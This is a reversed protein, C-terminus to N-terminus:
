SSFVRFITKFIVAFYNKLSPNAIFKRNLQIKAPMIEKVYTEDPNPSKGLLENEHFYEISAVDTIGPKVNLIDLQEPLYLDVYKRVEPRPGVFSMDGKLVNIFQPLEDLKFRRLFFGVRTIRSDKKGVTLLGKKEAGSKMTRFKWLLFDMNNKGVRTQKYFVPFGSDLIIGIALLLFLPSLILLGCLSFILDFFRIFFKNM